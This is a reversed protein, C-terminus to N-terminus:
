FLPAAARRQRLDAYYSGPVALHPPLYDKIELDWSIQSQANSLAATPLFGCHDQAYQQFAKGMLGLNQGCVVTRRQEGRPLHVTYFGAGAVLCVAVVVLAGLRSVGGRAACWASRNPRFLESTM